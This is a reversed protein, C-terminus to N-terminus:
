MSDAAGRYLSIGPPHFDTPTGALKVPPAATDDLKLTYLGDQPDPQGAPARRNFASVFILNDRADVEFDEPWKMGTITTCAGPSVEAFSNFVGVSMVDSIILTIFLAVILGSALLGLRTVRDVPIRKM